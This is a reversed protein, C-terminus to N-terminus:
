EIEPEHFIEKNKEAWKSLFDERGTIENYAEKVSIIQETRVLENFKEWLEKFIEPYYHKMDLIVSSDIVYKM